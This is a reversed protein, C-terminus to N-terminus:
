RMSEVVNTEYLEVQRPETTYHDCCVPDPDEKTGAHGDEIYVARLGRIMPLCYTTGSASIANNTCKHCDIRYVTM